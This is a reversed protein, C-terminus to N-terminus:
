EQMMASEQKKFERLQTERWGTPETSRLSTTSELTADCYRCIGVLVPSGDPEPFVWHHTHGSTCTVQLPSHM